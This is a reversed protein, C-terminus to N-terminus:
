QSSCVVDPLLGRGFASETGVLGLMYSRHHQTCHARTSQYMGVFGIVTKNHRIISRPWFVFFPILCMPVKTVLQAEKQSCIELILM